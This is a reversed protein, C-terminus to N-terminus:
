SQALHCSFVARSQAFRDHSEWLHMTGGYTFKDKGLHIEVYYRAGPQFSFLRFIYTTILMDM